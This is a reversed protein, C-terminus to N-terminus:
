SFRSVSCEQVLPLIDGSAMGSIGECICGGSQATVLSPFAIRPKSPSAHQLRAISDPNTSSPNCVVPQPNRPSNPSNRFSVASIGIPFGAQIDSLYFDSPPSVGFGGYHPFIPPTQKPSPNYTTTPSANVRARFITTHIIQTVLIM